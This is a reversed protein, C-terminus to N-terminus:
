KLLAKLTLEIASVPLGAQGAGAEASFSGAIVQNLPKFSIGDLSLTVDNNLMKIWFNKKVRLYSVSPKSTELLDGEASFSIPIEDGQRFEVTIGQSNKQFIETLQDSSIENARILKTQATAFLSTIFLGTFAIIKLQQRMNKEQSSKYNQYFLLETDPFESIM